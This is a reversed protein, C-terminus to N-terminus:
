IKMVTYTRKKWDLLKADNIYAWAHGDGYCISVKYRSNWHDDSYELYFPLMWTQLRPENAARHIFGGQGPLFYSIGEKSVLKPEDYYSNYDRIRPPEYVDFYTHHIINKRIDALIEEFSNFPMISDSVWDFNFYFNEDRRLTAGTVDSANELLEGSANDKWYGQTLQLHAIHRYRESSGGPKWGTKDAIATLVKELSEDMKDSIGSINTKDAIIKSEGNSVNVVM